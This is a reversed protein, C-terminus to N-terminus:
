RQLVLKRALTSNETRIRAFYLGQPLGPTNWTYKGSVPMVGRHMMRGHIDYIALEPANHLSSEHITEVMGSNAM